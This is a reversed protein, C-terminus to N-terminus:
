RCYGKSSSLLTIGRGNKKSPFYLKDDKGESKPLMKGAPFLPFTPLIEVYNDETKEARQTDLVNISEDQIIDSNLERDSLIM